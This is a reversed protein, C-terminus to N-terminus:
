KLTVSLTNLMPKVPRMVQLDGCTITTLIAQNTQKMLCLKELLQNDPDSFYSTGATPFVTPCDTGQFTPLSVSQLFQSIRHIIHCAVAGTKQQQM